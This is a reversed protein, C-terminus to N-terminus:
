DAELVVVGDGGEGLWSSWGLRSVSAEGALTPRVEEPRLRLELDFHLRSRLISRVVTTLQLFIDTDPLFSNFRKWSLESLRIRFKGSQDAIHEGIHCDLALSSNGLGLRCQQDWPIPVRRRICPVVAVQPHRFYHRLTSELSGAADGKFAILGTYALLRSWNVGGTQRLQGYGMGLFSFFRGSMADDANATFQLYYRYKKWARYLVTILRHHFIDFFDRLADPEDQQQAVHETFYAPLPSGAGHLGMLNLMLTVTPSADPGEHRAIAEIDSPPFSLNPNVTFRLADGGNEGPLARLRRSVIDVAQVFAFSGPSQELNKYVSSKGREHPDSGSWVSPLAARGSVVAPLRTKGAM